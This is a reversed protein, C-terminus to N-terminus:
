PICFALIYCTLRTQNNEVLQKFITSNINKTIDGDLVITDLSMVIKNKNAYLKSLIRIDENILTFLFKHLSIQPFESMHKRM